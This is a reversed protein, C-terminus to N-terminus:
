GDPQTEFDYGLAEHIKDQGIFGAVVAAAALKQMAESNRVAAPGLVPRAPMNKTGFEQFVMVESASGVVGELGHREKQIDDRLAGSRLLPEDESYGQQLRDDKTADALEPWAPFSGVGAQYVGFESKATRQIRTLIAELGQELALYEAAELRVLEMAMEALSNMVRPASM